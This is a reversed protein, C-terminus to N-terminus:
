YSANSAVGILWGATLLAGGVLLVLRWRHDSVLGVVFAAAAVFVIALQGDWQWAEVRTYWRGDGYCADGCRTRRIVFGGMVLAGALAAAIGTRVLLLGLGRRTAPGQVRIV